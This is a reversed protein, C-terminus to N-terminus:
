AHNLFHYLAVIVFGLPVIVSYAYGLKILLQPNWRRVGVSQFASQFGHALHLGLFVFSIIYLAVRWGDVFKHQLEAFYRTPDQPQVNIYKVNIEHIWFDYFHLGIFGLIALGTWIMNRSMWSANASGDYNAYKISRARNNQVQLVFGWVFHFIVGGILIPQLVFQVIPNHGMFHSLENFIDASFVSTMNITLHQLLFVILFLASLAM